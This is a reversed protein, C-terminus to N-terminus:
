QAEGEQVDRRRLMPNTAAQVTVLVIRDEPALLRVARPLLPYKGRAPPWTEHWQGADDLYSFAAPGQWSWLPWRATSGPRYAVLETGDGGDQRMEMRFPEPGRAGPWPPMTTYGSLTSASGTFRLPDGQPGNMVGQLTQRVWQAYLAEGSAFLRSDALRTELRALTGLAQWLLSTIVGFLVLTVLMEMLTFGRSPPRMAPKM